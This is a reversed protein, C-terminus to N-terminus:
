FSPAFHCVSEDPVFEYGVVHVLCDVKVLFYDAPIDFVGTHRAQLVHDETFVAFIDAAHHGPSASARRLKRSLPHTVDVGRLEVFLQLSYCGVAPSNHLGSLIDGADSTERDHQIRLLHLVQEEFGALLISRRTQILHRHAIHSPVFQEGIIWCLSKVVVGLM